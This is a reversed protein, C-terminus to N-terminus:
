LQLLPQFDRVTLLPQPSQAQRTKLSPTQPAVESSGVAEQSPSTYVSTSLEGGQSRPTLCTPFNYLQM